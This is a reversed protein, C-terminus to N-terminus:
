EFLSARIIFIFVPPGKMQVLFFIVGKYGQRVAETMELVQKTEKKFIGEVVKNYRM